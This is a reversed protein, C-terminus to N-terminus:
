DHLHGPVAVCDPASLRHGRGVRAECAFFPSISVLLSRAIALDLGLCSQPPAGSFHTYLMRTFAFNGGESLIFVLM